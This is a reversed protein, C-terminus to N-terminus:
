FIYFEQSASVLIDKLNKNRRYGLVLHYKRFIGPQNIQLKSYAAKVIRSIKGAKDHFRQIYSIPPPLEERKNLSLPARTDLKNIWFHERHLLTVLDRFICLYLENFKETCVTQM